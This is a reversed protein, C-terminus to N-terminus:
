KIVENQKAVIEHAIRIEYENENIQKKYERSHLEGTIKIKDNIKLNVNNIAVDNWCQIPIYNNLKTGNSMIMNNALIFHFNPKDGDINIHDIKCIRGDIIVENTIEEDKDNEPFDFYTFVYIEVKYKGDNSQSSYSRVNGTINIEDLDKYKNTYKKFRLNIIDEKGDKRTV